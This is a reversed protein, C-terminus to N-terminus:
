ECLMGSVGRGCLEPASDSDINAFQLTRHYQPLNWADANKPSVSYKHLGEFSSGNSYACYMGDSGRGCVDERGDKDLDVFQITSYYQAQDWGDADAFTTTWTTAAGFASGTSLACVMGGSGRGCVDKKGDNNLDPYAITSYYKAASWGNADSFAPAWTTLGAFSSGNSIGCMIGGMGRGCVDGAASGGVNPYKITSYYQAAGWGNADSFSSNWLAVAGFASGSSIGCSVGSIGRGCVDAKGDNNIDPYDITAYYKEANFGNADSFVSAWVAAGTFASGNSVACTVGGSGRGCVDLGGSGNVNPFRVTSYYQVAGWGNADSYNASWTTPANFKTGTSTGCTIGGSGRGCLDRKGDNNTDVLRVTSYYKANTWGNADSFSTDWSKLPHGILHNRVGTLLSNKMIQIQSPSFAWPISDCFFYGVPNSRLPTFSLNVTSGNARHVILPITLNAACGNLGPPTEHVSIGTDALGDGDLLYDRMATASSIGSPCGTAKTTGDLLDRICAEVSRWGAAKHAADLDDDEPAWYERHTHPLGFYHGLEHAFNHVDGAFLIRNTTFSAEGGGRSPCYFMAVKGVLAQGITDMQQVGATTNCGGAPIGPNESVDTAPDFDFQIGAAAFLPNTFALADTVIQANFGADVKYVHLRVRRTTVVNQSVEGVSEEQSVDDAADVACGTAAILAAAAAFRPRTVSAFLSRILNSM